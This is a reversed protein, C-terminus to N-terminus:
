AIKPSSNDKKQSFPSSILILWWKVLDLIPCVHRILIKSHCVKIKKIKYKTCVVNVHKRTIDSLPHFSTFLYIYVESTWDWDLYGGAFRTKRQKRGGIVFSHFKTCRRDPYWFRSQIFIIANELYVLAKIPKSFFFMKQYTYFWKVKWCLWRENQFVQELTKRDKTNRRLVRNSWSKLILTRKLM